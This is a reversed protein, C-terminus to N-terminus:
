VVTNPARAGHKPGRVWWGTEPVIYRCSADRVLFHGQGLLDTESLSVRGWPCIHGFIPLHLFAFGKLVVVVVVVVRGVGGGSVCVGKETHSLELSGSWSWVECGRQKLILQPYNVIVNDTM